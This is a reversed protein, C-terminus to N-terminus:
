PESFRARKPLPLMIGEDKSITAAERRASLSGSQTRVFLLRDIREVRFRKEEGVSSQLAPAIYARFALADAAQTLVRVFRICGQCLEAACGWSSSASLCIVLYYLTDTPAHQCSALGRPSASISVPLGKVAPALLHPLEGVTSASQCETRRINRKNNVSPRLAGPLGM